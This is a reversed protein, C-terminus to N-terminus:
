SFIEALTQDGGGERLRRLENYLVTMGVAAVTAAATQFLGTVLGIVYIGATAVGGAGRFMTLAVEGAIWTVGGIVVFLLVALGFIPWRHGRTLVASREFSDIVAVGEIVRVQNTVAWITMLMLGPVVLLVIGIGIGISKLIGLGLLPLFTRLGALVSEALTARGGVHDSYAIHIVAGTFMAGIIANVVAFIWNPGAFSPMNQLLPATPLWSAVLNPALHMLLAAPATVSMTRRLVSLTKTIVDGVGLQQSPGNSSM